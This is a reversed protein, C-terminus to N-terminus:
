EKRKISARSLEVISEDPFGNITVQGNVLRLEITNSNKDWGQEETAMHAYHDTM